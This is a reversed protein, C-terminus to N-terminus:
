KQIAAKAEEYTLFVNKNFNDPYFVWDAGSNNTAFIFIKNNKGIVIRDVTGNLVSGQSPVYLTDGVKCPIWICFGQKEAGEYDALVTDIKNTLYQITSKLQQFEENTIHYM